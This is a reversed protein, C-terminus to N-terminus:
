AEKWRPFPPQMAGDLLMLYYELTREVVDVAHELEEPGECCGRVIGMCRRHLDAGYRQTRLWNLVRPPLYVTPQQRYFDVGQRMRAAWQGLAWEVGVHLSALGVAVSERAPVSWLYHDVAELPAPTKAERLVTAPIGFGGCWDIYWRAQDRNAELRGHLFERSADGGPRKTDIRGLLAADLRPIAEILPFASVFLKQLQNQVPLDGSALFTMMLHGTVRKKTPLLRAFPGLDGPELAGENSVLRLGDGGGARNGDSM